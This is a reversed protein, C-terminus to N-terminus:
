AHIAKTAPRGAPLPNETLVGKDAVDIAESASQAFVPEVLSDVVWHEIVPNVMLRRILIERLGHPIEGRLEIRRGTVVGHVPWGKRRAVRLLQEAVADTVGAHLVSEVMLSTEDELGASRFWTSSQLLPDVLITELDSRLDSGLGGQFFILDSITVSQLSAYGMAHADSLLAHGRPDDGRVVVM